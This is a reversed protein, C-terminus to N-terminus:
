IQCYFSCLFVFFVRYLRETIHMHKAVVPIAPFINTKNWYFYRQDTVIIHRFMPFLNVASESNNNWPRLCSWTKEIGTWEYEPKADNFIIKCKITSCLEFPPSHLSIIIYWFLVVTMISQTLLTCVNLSSSLFITALTIQKGSLSQLRSPSRVKQQYILTNGSDAEGADNKVLSTCDLGWLHLLHTDTNCLSFVSIKWLNGM